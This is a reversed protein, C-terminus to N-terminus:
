FSKTYNLELVDFKFKRCFLVIKISKQVSVCEYFFKLKNKKFEVHVYQILGGKKESRRHERYYIDVQYLVQILGFNKELELM